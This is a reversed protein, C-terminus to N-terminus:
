REAKSDSQRPLNPADFELRVPPLGVIDYTGSAIAIKEATLRRLIERYMRDKTQRINHDKCIFRVSLEIWNSTM